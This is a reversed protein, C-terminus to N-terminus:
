GIINFTSKPETSFTPLFGRPKIPVDNTLQSTLGKLIASSLQSNKLCRNM